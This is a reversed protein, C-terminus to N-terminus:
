NFYARQKFAFMKVLAVRLKVDRKNSVDAFVKWKFFSERLRNDIYSEFAFKLM